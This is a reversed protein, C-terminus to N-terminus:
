VRVLKFHHWHNKQTGGTASILVGEGADGNLDIRLTGEIDLDNATSIGSNIDFNGGTILNNGLLM